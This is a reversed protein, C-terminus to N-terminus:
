NKSFYGHLPEEDDRAEHADDIHNLMENLDEFWDTRLDFVYVRPALDFSLEIQCTFGGYGRMERLRQEIARREERGLGSENLREMGEDIVEADFENAYLTVMRVGAAEATALFTRYDPHAEINWYVAPAEDGRPTGHFVAIGHSKLYDQIESRMTDLNLKM